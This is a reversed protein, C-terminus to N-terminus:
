KGDSTLRKWWGGAPREIGLRKAVSGLLRDFEQEILDVEHARAEAAARLAAAEARIREADDSARELLTQAEIKAQERLGAAEIEASQLLSDIQAQASQRLSRMSEMLANLEHERTNRADEIAQLRINRAEELARELAERARRYAIEALSGTAQPGELARLRELLDNRVSGPGDEERM